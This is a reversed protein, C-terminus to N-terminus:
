ASKLNNKVRKIMRQFIPLEYWKNVGNPREADYHKGNYYIWQHHVLGNNLSSLDIPFYGYKEFADKNWDGRNTLIPNDFNGDRFEDYFEDSHLTYLNDTEGGLKEIIEEAFEVCMGNNIDSISCNYVDKYNLIMQTIESSINVDENIFQKFNKVKDIMKRIDESM